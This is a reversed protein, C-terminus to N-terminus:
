TDSSRSSDPPAISDLGAGATAPSYIDHGYQRALRSATILRDDACADLTASCHSCIDSAEYNILGALESTRAWRVIPPRHARTTAAKMALGVAALGALASEDKTVRSGKAWLRPSLDLRPEHWAIAGTALATYAEHATEKYDDITRWALQPTHWTNFMPWQKRVLGREAAWSSPSAIVCDIHSNRITQRAVMAAITASAHGPHTWAEVGGRTYILTAAEGTYPAVVIAACWQPHKATPATIGIGACASWPREPITQPGQRQIAALRRAVFQRLGM